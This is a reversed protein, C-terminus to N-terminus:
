RAKKAFTIQLPMNGSEAAAKLGPLLHDGVTKGDGMVIYSLFEQELTSIGTEVAELKAQITLLLARWRQRIAQEYAKHAAVAGRERGTDTVHFEEDDPLPLDVKIHVTLGGIIFQMAALGREEWTGIGDADYRRLVTKIQEQSREISVGTDKAFKGAM